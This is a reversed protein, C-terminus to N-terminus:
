RMKMAMRLRVMDSGGSSLEDFPRVGAGSKCFGGDMAKSELWHGDDM